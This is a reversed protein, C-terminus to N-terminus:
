SHFLFILCHGTSLDIRLDAFEHISAPLGAPFHRSLPNGNIFLQDARVIMGRRLNQVPSNLLRGRPDGQIRHVPCKQRQMFHAFRGDDLARPLRFSEVGPHFLMLMEFTNLALPDNIEMVFWEVVDFNGGHNFFLEGHQSFADVQLSKAVPATFSTTQNQEKVLSPITNFRGSLKRKFGTIKRTADSASVSIIIGANLPCSYRAADILNCSQCHFCLCIDGFHCDYVCSKKDVLTYNKSLVLILSM